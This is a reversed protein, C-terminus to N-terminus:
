NHISPRQEELRLLFAKKDLGGGYGVLSGDGGVVRHCPVIISIPNVHNARGVARAASPKGIEKAIQGYSKTKGYPIQQLAGWVARQFETGQLRLPLTFAKRTGAFYESLQQATEDLLPTRKQWAHKAIEQPLTFYVGTLADEEEVFYLTGIEYDQSALYVM